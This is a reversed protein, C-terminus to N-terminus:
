AWCGVRYKKKLKEFQETFFFMQGDVVSSDIKEIDEFIENVIDVKSSSLLYQLVNLKEKDTLEEWLPGSPMKEADIYRPM